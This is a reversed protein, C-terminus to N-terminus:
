AAPSPEIPPPPEWWRTGEVPRYGAATLAAVIKVPPMLYITRRRERMENLLEEFVAIAWPEPDHLVVGDIVRTVKPEAEPPAALEAPSETM